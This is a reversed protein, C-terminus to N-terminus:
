NWLKIEELTKETQKENSLDCSFLTGPFPNSQQRAIGIVRYGTITLRKSTELGIGKTAGTVLVSKKM